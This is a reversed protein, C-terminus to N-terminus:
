SGSDLAQNLQTHASDRAQCSQASALSLCLAADDIYATYLLFVQQSCDASTGLLLGNMAAVRATLASAAESEITAATTLNARIRGVNCAPLAASTGSSGSNLHGGISKVLTFVGILALACVAIRLALAEYARTQAPTRRPRRPVVIPTPRAAYEASGFPAPVGVGSQQAWQACSISPPHDEGCFACAEAPADGAAVDQGTPCDSDRPTGGSAGPESM